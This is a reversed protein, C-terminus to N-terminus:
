NVATLAAHRADWNFTCAPTATGSLALAADAFALSAGNRFVYAGEVTDPLGRISVTGCERLRSDTRAVDLVLERAASAKQWYGQHGRAGVTGFVVLVAIAGMGFARVATRREHSIMTVLLLAYGVVPLHLYRSGQLDPAIFFLTVAPLSGLLLWGSAATAVRTTGIASRTVFFTTAVGITLM